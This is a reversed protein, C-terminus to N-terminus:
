CGTASAPSRRLPPHMTRSLLDLAAAPRGTALLYETLMPPAELGPRDELSALLEKARRLHIRALEVDGRRVALVAAGLRAKAAGNPPGTLSLCERLVASAESLEAMEMLWRSASGGLYVADGTAGAELMQHFATLEIQCSEIDCGRYLLYNSRSFSGSGILPPDGTLLAYRLAEASDRDSQEERSYAFARADYAIALAEVAGSRHAARVAEDTHRQASELDDVWAERHGLNAMAMAYEPSDPFGRSLEVARHAEALPEAVINGTEWAKDALEILLRSARLPNVAADVLDCCSVM